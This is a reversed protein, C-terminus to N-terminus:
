LVEAILKEVNLRHAVGAAAIARLVKELREIRRRQADNTDERARLAIQLGAVDRRLRLMEDAIVTDLAVIM